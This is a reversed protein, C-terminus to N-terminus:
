RHKTFGFVCNNEPSQRLGNITDHPSVIPASQKLAHDSGFGTSFQHSDNMLTEGKRDDRTERVASVAEWYKSFVGSPCNRSGRGGGDIRLDAGTIYSALPSCLFVVAHAVEDVRGIRGLPVQFCRARARMEAQERKRYLVLTAVM